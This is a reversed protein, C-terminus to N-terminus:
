RSLSVQALRRWVATITTGRGPDSHFKLEGGNLEARQRMSSLGLGHAPGNVTSQLCGIGDDKVLLTTTEGAHELRMWLNKAGAHKVANNLAEQAIRFLHIKLPEDIDREAVKTELHIKLSPAANGMDRCLRALALLLGGSDLIAPRLAMSLRRVEDIMEQTKDVCAGLQEAPWYEAQSAVEAATNQLMLKVACLSQGIGDHLDGAIRKREDEQSTILRRSLQQLEQRSAQLAQEARIQDTVNIVTLFQVHEGEAFFDINARRVWLRTGDARVARCVCEPPAHHCDGALCTAKIACCGPAFLRAVPVGVLEGRDYGLLEEFRYNCYAVVGRKAMLLGAITNELVLRHRRRTEELALRTDALETAAERLHENTETLALSRHELLRQLERNVKAVKRRAIKERTIDEVVAFFNADGADDVPDSGPLVYGLKVRLVRELIPDDHEFQQVTDEPLRDLANDIRRALGCPSHDCGPHLLDHLSGLSDSTVSGLGWTEIARNARSIRRRRDLVCVIQPLADITGEWALKAGRIQQLRRAADQRTRVSELASGLIALVCSLVHRAEDSLPPVPRVSAILAAIDAGGQPPLVLTVSDLADPQIAFEVARSVAAVSPRGLEVVMCGNTDAGVVRDRILGVPSEPLSALADALRDAPVDGWGAGAASYLAHASGECRLVLVHSHRLAAGLARAAGKLLEAPEGCRAALCAYEAVLGLPTTENASKDPGKPQPRLERVNSM